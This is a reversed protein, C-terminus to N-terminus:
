QGTNTRWSAIRAPLNDWLDQFAANQGVSNDSKMVGHNYVYCAPTNASRCLVWAAGFTLGGTVGALSVTAGAGLNTAIKAENPARGIIVHTQRLGTYHNVAIEPVVITGGGSDVIIGRPRGTAQLQYIIDETSDHGFLQRGGAPVSGNLVVDAWSMFWDTGFSVAGNGSTFTCAQADTVRFCKDSSDLPAPGAVGFETPPGGILSLVAAGVTPVLPSATENCPWFHDVIGESLLGWATAVQAATIPERPDTVPTGSAGASIEDASLGFALGPRPGVKLGTRLGVM